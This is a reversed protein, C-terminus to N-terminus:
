LRVSNEIFVSSRFVRVCHKPRVKILEPTVLQGVWLFCIHGCDVLYAGHQELYQASAPVTPPLVMEGDAGRDGWGSAHLQFVAPYAILM